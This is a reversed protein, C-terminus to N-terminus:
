ESTHEESRMLIAYDRHGLACSHDCTALLREVDSADLARPLSPNWGAVSLVAQDLALSCQGELRSFRLLARLASVSQRSSSISLPRCERTVFSTVDAATLAGLDVPGDGFRGELFRRAVRAYFRVTGDVLCREGRLYATFLEVVVDVEGVAHEPTAPPIVGSHRLFAVLPAASRTTLLNAYGAQRRAAFFEEVRSSALAPLELGGAELWADLHVMLNLQKKAASTSYGLTRLEERFSVAFPALQGRPVVPSRTSM